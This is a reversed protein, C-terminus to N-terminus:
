EESSDIGKQLYLRAVAGGVISLFTLSAFLGRPLTDIFLPVIAECGMFIAALAMFRVSWARKVILKWSPNLRLRKVM